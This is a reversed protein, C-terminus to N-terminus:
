SLEGLLSNIITSKGAGSSGLFAGTRGPELFALLADVGDGRLASMPVVPTGPASARVRARSANAAILPPAM